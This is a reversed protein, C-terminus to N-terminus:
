NKSERGGERGNKWEEIRRGRGEMRGFHFALFAAQFCPMDSFREMKDHPYACQDVRAEGTEGEKSEESREGGGKWEERICHTSIVRFVVCTPFFVTGNKLSPLRM